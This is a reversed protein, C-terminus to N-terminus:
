RTPSFKRCTLGPPKASGVMGASKVGNPMRL